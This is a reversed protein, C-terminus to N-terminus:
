PNVYKFKGDQMIYVGVASYETLTRFLEEAQKRETIDVWVATTYKLDGKDDTVLTRTIQVWFVEGNKRRFRREVAVRGRLKGGQYFREMQEHEEAPWWPYPPKQGVLEEATFGSLQQIIPNVYRVSDDPNLVIMAAPSNNLLSSNFEESERLKQEAQQRETIDEGSSITGIINGAEDRLLNNHWALIREEGRKSLIPNEYYQALPIEGAMLKQFVDHVEGRVREPVFTDVWDRGIIEDPSAGLIECGKRNILAVKQDAGLALLMVGAVNLYQQAKDREKRLLEEAVKRETIDVWISM